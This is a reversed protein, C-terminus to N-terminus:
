LFQDSDKRREKENQVSVIAQWNKPLGEGSGCRLVEYTAFQGFSMAM